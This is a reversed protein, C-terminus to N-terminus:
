LTTRQETESKQSGADTLVDTIARIEELSRAQMLRAEFAERASLRAFDILFDREVIRTRMQDALTKKYPGAEGNM